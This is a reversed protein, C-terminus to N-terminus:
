DFESPDIEYDVIKKKKLTIGIYYEISSKKITWNINQGDLAERFAKHFIRSDTYSEENLGNLKTWEIYEKHIFSTSIRDNKEGVMNIKGQQVCEEVFAIVPQSYIQMEKKLKEMEISKTFKWNNKKLRKLGRIAWNFIGPLENLLMKELEPNGIKEYKGKNVSQNDSSHFHVKMPITIIREWFGTSSDDTQLYHNSCVVIKTTLVETTAKEFKGEIKIADRGTLAKLTSTKMLKEQGAEPCICVRTGKIASLSFRGGLEDLPMGSVMNSGHLAHMINCLVSKGNRGKGYLYFLRDAPAAGYLLTYGFMEQVLRMLNKRDDPFFSRLTNKWVPCDAGKVYNYELRYTHIEFAGFSDDFSYDKLNFIGNPFLISDNNEPLTVYKDSLSNLFRLVRGDSLNSYLASDYEGMINMCIESIIAPDVMEYCQTKRNLAYM